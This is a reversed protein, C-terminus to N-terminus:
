KLREASCKSQQSAVIVLTPSQGTGEIPLLAPRPVKVVILKFSDKGNGTLLIILIWRIM